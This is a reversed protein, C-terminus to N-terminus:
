ASWGWPGYWDPPAVTNTLLGVIVLAGLRRLFIPRRAARTWWWVVLPILPVITITEKLWIIWLPDYRVAMRRLLLNVSGYGAASVLCLLTGVLGPSIVRSVPLLVQRHEGAQRGASVQHFMGNNFM